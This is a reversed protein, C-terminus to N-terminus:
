RKKTFQIGSIKEYAHKKIGACVSCGALCGALCGCRGHDRDEGEVSERVDRARLGPEERLAANRINGTFTSSISLWIVFGASETRGKKYFIRNGYSECIM